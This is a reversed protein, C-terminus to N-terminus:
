RVPCASVTPPTTWYFEGQKYKPVYYPSYPDNAWNRNIDEKYYSEWMSSATDKIFDAINDLGIVKDILLVAFFMAPGYISTVPPPGPAIGGAMDTAAGPPIPIYGETDIRNIPDNLCYGYLDTDGGEFLIPDKATWRGTNPDYDRFGFRVLGTDIDHLGGAFGFPIVFSPNSDNIINGFSDYGIEKVVNGTTDAILRLSGVQDYTLYYTAGGKTMAVPMRDDTYEFRM